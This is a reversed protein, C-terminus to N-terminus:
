ASKARKAAVRPAPWCTITAVDFGDDSSVASSPPWKADLFSKSPWVRRRYAETWTQSPLRQPNGCEGVYPATARSRAVHDAQLGTCRASDHNSSTLSPRRVRRPTLRRTRRHRLERRSTHPGPARRRGTASSLPACSARPWVGPDLGASQPLMVPRRTSAHMTSSLKASAFRIPKLLQASVRGV